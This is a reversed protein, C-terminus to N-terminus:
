RDRAVLIVVPCRVVAGAGSPTLQGTQPDVHFARINDSEQNGVYLEDDVVAFHRPTTGGTPTDAIPRLTDGDTAFTSIVGVRRNGVHLFRGGHSLAIESPQPRGSQQSPEALSPREGLWELSRDAKVDFTMVVGGLEASVFLRGDPHLALHRPGAGTPTRASGVQTAKGTAEDIAYTLVEDTGLDTAFVFREGPLFVACHPRPERDIPAAARRDVLDLINSVTGDDEIRHVAFCGGFYHSTFLFTGPGVQGLAIHAPSSGTVVTAIRETTAGVNVAYTDISGSPLESAAYLLDLTPHQVLFAPCGGNEVGVQRILGDQSTASLTTLGDGTAGKPPTFSGVFLTREALGAM